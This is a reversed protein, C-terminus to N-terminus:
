HLNHLTSSHLELPGAGMAPLTQTWEVGIAGGAEKDVNIALTEGAEPALRTAVNDVEHAQM